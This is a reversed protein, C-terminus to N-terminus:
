ESQQFNYSTAPENKNPQKWATLSNEPTWVTQFFIAGFHYSFMVHKNFGLKWGPTIKDFVHFNCFAIALSCPTMMYTMM